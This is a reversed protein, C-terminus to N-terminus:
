RHCTKEFTYDVWKWWDPFQLDRVTWLSTVTSWSSARTSRWGTLLRWTRESSTGHEWRRRYRLSYTIGVCTVIIAWLFLHNSGSVCGVKALVAAFAVELRKRLAVDASPMLYNSIYSPNDPNGMRDNSWPLSITSTVGIVPVKFIDAFGLLCDTAYVESIIADYKVKSSKLKETNPHLVVNQCISPGMEYIFNATRWTNM